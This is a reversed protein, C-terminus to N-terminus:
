MYFSFLMTGKEGLKVAGGFWWWWWFILLLIFDKGMGWTHM